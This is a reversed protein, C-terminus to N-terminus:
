PWATGWTGYTAWMWGLLMALKARVAEEAALIAVDDEDCVQLFAGVATSGSGGITLQGETEQGCTGGCVEGSVFNKDLHMGLHGDRISSLSSVGAIASICRLYCKSFSGPLM